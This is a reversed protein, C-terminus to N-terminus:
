RFNSEREMSYKKWTYVGENILAKRWVDGNEDLAVICDYTSKTAPIVAIQVFKAHKPTEEVYESADCSKHEGNETVWGNRQLIKPTEEYESILDYSSDETYTSIRGDVASCLRGNPAYVCSGDFFYSFDCSLYEKIVGSIKGDRRVYRKGAEIKM